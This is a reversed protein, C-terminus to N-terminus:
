LNLDEVTCMKLSEWRVRSKHFDDTMKVGLAPDDVGFQLRVVGSKLQLAIQETAEFGGTFFCFDNFKKRGQGRNLNKRDAEVVSPM